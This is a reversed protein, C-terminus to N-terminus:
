PKKKKKASTFNLMNAQELTLDTTKSFKTQGNCLEMTALWHTCHSKLVLISFNYHVNALTVSYALIVVESSFLKLTINM